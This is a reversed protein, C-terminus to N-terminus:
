QLKPAMTLQPARAPSKWRGDSTVVFSNAFAQVFLAADLFRLFPFALGYILLGPRRTLLAVAITLLYDAGFYVGALLAPAVPHFAMDQLSYTAAPNGFILGLAVMIPLAMTFLSIIGLEILLPMLALWFKGRWVGHRWVTQWFGLYWRYVQNRYDRLMFPDETSCRVRPSYAIRGLKKRQVEFTMNFDEIVLGPATIDIQTLASSRYMSAFGPAIYSVNTRKWSQGYQFAAQLILYLRMRYASLFRSHGTGGSRGRRSEVHGAVAAVNEDDFLPLGNRLYDPDVESDADQILVVKYRDCLENRSIVMAIARAKGGNPRIDDVNCGAESAVTVTADSSGDSAVYIQHGPVIRRLAALCKPLAIEENHAPVVVAVDSPRIRRVGMSGCGHRRENILRLVGVCSWFVINLGLASSLLLLLLNEILQGNMEPM